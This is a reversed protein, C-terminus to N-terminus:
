TDCSSLKPLKPHLKGVSRSISLVPLRDSNMKLYSGARELRLTPVMTGGNRECTRWLLCCLGCEKREARARLGQVQYTIDFGPFGPRWIRDRFDKCKNCLNSSVCNEPMPFRDTDKFASHLDSAFVNDVEFKWDKPDLELQGYDVQEREPEALGEPAPKVIKKDVAIPVSSSGESNVPAPRRPQDTSWYSEEEDTLLIHELRDHLETARFRKPGGLEPEPEVDNEVPDVTFSFTPINTPHSEESVPPKPPTSAAPVEGASQGVPLTFHRKMHPQQLTMDDFTGGEKHLKVVLLGQQVIELLDGLATTGVKCAPDNAIHNMWHEAVSHVSAVKKGGVITTRYFPSNRGSKGTVSENFRELEDFGYLLWIIFELTICGMAWIDYLRSRRFEDQGPLTAKVGTEVEPPEYRRTGFQASTGKLRLATVVNQIKAEGWDGIKLKGIEGGDLFWLINEPKLDGHRYALGSYVGDETLFHAACLAKSLGLLQEIVAKIFPAKLVPRKAKWLDRLNGGDAWEFILYHEPDHQSGRRFATIFRVIHDQKLENMKALANVEKGWHTAV